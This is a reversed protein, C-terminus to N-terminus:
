KFVWHKQLQFSVFFLFGDVFVKLLTTDFHLAEFLGVVLLWSILMQCCCLVYYKLVTKKVTQKSKFSFKKNVSYNFLSSCIRAIVTSYLVSDVVSFGNFVLKSLFAFLLVDLVASLVGSLGFRFFEAFIIKYIRFSDVVARFHTARNSDIYVTSIKEEVFPIGQRVADILMKIEYDFREGSIDLCSKVYEKPIGRLGTQTDSLRRGYLLLFIGSTLLNGFRSKPPVDKSFFDRSGLIISYKKNSSLSHLAMAVKIIDKTLHQGDADCTVIGKANKFNDLIYAFGTKLARGKGKNVDHHVVSVGKVESIKKFIWQYADGSGDDVIMIQKFKSVSLEGVLRELNEDPEYSPILIVIDSLSQPNNNVDLNM